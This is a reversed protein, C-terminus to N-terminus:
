ILNFVSIVTKVGIETAGEYGKNKNIDERTGWNCQSGTENGEKKWHSVKVKVLVSLDAKREKNRPGM